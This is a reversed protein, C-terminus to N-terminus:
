EEIPDHVVRVYYWNKSAYCGNPGGEEDGEPWIFLFAYDNMSYNMESTWYATKGRLYPAYIFPIDNKVKNIESLENITPLRWNKLNNISFNDAYKRALYFNLRGSVYGNKQWLLGTKTDLVYRGHDIFRDHSNTRITQKNQKKVINDLLTIHGLEKHNKYYNLTQKLISDQELVNSGINSDLIKKINENNSERISLFLKKRYHHLIYDYGKQLKRLKLLYEKKEIDSSNLMDAKNGILITKNVDHIYRKVLQKVIEDTSNLENFTIAATYLPTGMKSFLKPYVSTDAMVLSNLLVVLWLIRM